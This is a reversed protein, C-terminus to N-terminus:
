ERCCERVRSRSVIKTVIAVKTIHRPCQPCKGNATMAYIQFHCQFQWGSFMPYLHKAPMHTYCLYLHLSLSLSLSSLGPRCKLSMPNKRRFQYQSVLTKEYKALPSKSGSGVLHWRRSRPFPAHIISIGSCLFILVPQMFIHTVTIFWIELGGSFGDGFVHSFAIFLSLIRPPLALVHRM